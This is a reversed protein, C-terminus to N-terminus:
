FVHLIPNFITFNLFFTKTVGRTALYDLKPFKGLFIKRSNSNRSDRPNEPNRFNKPIGSFIESFKENGPFNFIRSFPFGLVADYSYGLQSHSKHM